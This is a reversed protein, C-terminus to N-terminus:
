AGVSSQTQKLFLLIIIPAGLVKELASVAKFQETTKCSKFALSRRYHSKHKQKCLLLIKGKLFILWDGYFEIGYHQWVSLSVAERSNGFVTKTSVNSVITAGTNYDNCSHQLEWTLRAVLVIVFRICLSAFQLMYFCLKSKYTNSNIM